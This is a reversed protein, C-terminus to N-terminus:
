LCCRLNCFIRIVSLCLGDLSAPLRYKQWGLSKGKLGCEWTASFCQQALTSAPQWCEILLLSWRFVRNMNNSCIFVSELIVLDHLTFIFTLTEPKVRILWWVRTLPRLATNNSFGASHIRESTKRKKGGLRGVSVSKIWWDHPSRPARLTHSDTPPLATLHPSLSLFHAEADFLGDQCLPLFPDVRGHSQSSALSRHYLLRQLTMLGSRDQSGGGGCDEEYGPRWQPHFPSSMRPNVRPASVGQM